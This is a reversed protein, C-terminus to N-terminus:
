GIMKLDLKLSRNNVHLSGYVVSPTSSVIGDLSDKILVIWVLASYIWVGRTGVFTDCEIAMVLQLVWKITLDTRNGFEILQREPSTNLGPNM